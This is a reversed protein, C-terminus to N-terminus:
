IMRVPKKRNKNKNNNRYLSGSRSDSSESESLSGAPIVFCGNISKNVLKMMEGIATRTNEADQWKKYNDLIKQLVKLCENNPKTILETPDKIGAHTVNIQEPLLGLMRFEQAEPSDDNFTCPPKMKALKEFGAVYKNFKKNSKREQKQYEKALFMLKRMLKLCRQGETKKGKKKAGSGEKILKLADELNKKIDYDRLTKLYALQEAETEGAPRGLQSSTLKKKRKSRRLHKTKELQIQRQTKKAAILRKAKQVSSSKNDSGMWFALTKRRRSSSVSDAPGKIDKGKPSEYDTLARRFNIIKEKQRKQKTKVAKRLREELQNERSRSTKGGIGKTRVYRQYEDWFGIDTNGEKAKKTEKKIRSSTFYDSGKTVRSRADFQKVHINQPDKAIQRWFSNSVKAPRGNNRNKDGMIYKTGSKTQWYQIVKGRANKKNKAISNFDRNSVKISKIDSGRVYKNGSPTQWYQLVQGEVANKAKKLKKYEDNSITTVRGGNKSPDKAYKTGSDTKWFQIVM